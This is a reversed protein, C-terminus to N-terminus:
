TSFILNILNILNITMCKAKQFMILSPWGLDLRQTDFDVFHAPQLVQDQCLEAWAEYKM